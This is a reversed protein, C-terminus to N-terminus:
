HSGRLKKSIKQFHFQFYKQCGVEVRHGIDFDIRTRSRAFMLAYPVSWNKSEKATPVGKDSMGLKGIIEEVSIITNGFAWKTILYDDVLTDQLGSALPFSVRLGKSETKFLMQGAFALDCFRNDSNSETAIRYVKCLINEVMRRSFPFQYRTSLAHRLTETIQDLTDAGNPLDFKSLFWKMYRSSGSVEIEDRVWSPLLGLCAGIGLIHNTVLLDCNPTTSCYLKRLKKYQTARKKKDILSDFAAHFRLCALTKLTCRDEWEQGTPLEPEWYISFRVGPGTGTRLSRFHLVLSAVLFGFAFGRHCSHLEKPEMSLMAEAAASFYYVTNPLVEIASLLGVTEPFTLGFHAVLRISYHIFPQYFAMPDMNCPNRICAFGNMGGGVKGGLLKKSVVKREDPMNHYEKMVLDVLPQFRHTRLLCLDISKRGQANIGIRVLRGGVKRVVLM